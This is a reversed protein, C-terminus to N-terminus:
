FLKESWTKPTLENKIELDLNYNFPRPGRESIFDVMMKIGNELSVKTEYGLLKRAKDASCTAYRVELPRQPVYIPKLDFNMVKAITEALHNVSVFEEDPGINIIEKNVNELTVAKELCYVVDDIFSFCRKQEGDGYIIPQKNQLIRNIMIGAVNRFPDDYKQRPGIINHPVLISYEIDNLECLQKVIQESAVKAVAYPVQPNCVMDETFPVKEQEGYRSMSSCYVFRKV